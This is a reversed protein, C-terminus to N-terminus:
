VTFFPSVQTGRKLIAYQKEIVEDTPYSGSLKEYEEIWSRMEKLLAMDVMDKLLTIDEM